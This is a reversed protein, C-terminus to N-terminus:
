IRSQIPLPAAISWRVSSQNGDVDPAVRLAELIAGAHDLRKVM